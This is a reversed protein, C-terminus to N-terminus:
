SLADKRMAWTSYIGSGGFESLDIDMREVDSFGCSLYLNHGAPSSELYAPLSLKQAEDLGWQVLM